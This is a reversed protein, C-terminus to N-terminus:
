RNLEFPNKYNFIDDASVQPLLYLGNLGFYGGTCCSFIEADLTYPTSLTMNKYIHYTGVYEEDIELSPDKLSHVGIQVRGDTVNENIRMHTKATGSATSFGPGYHSISSESASFETEGEVNRAFDVDHRMSTSSYSDVVQANSGIGLNYHIPHNSYYGRGVLLSIPASTINNQSKYSVTSNSYSSNDAAPGAHSISGEGTAANANSAVYTMIVLGILVLRLLGLGFMKKSQHM